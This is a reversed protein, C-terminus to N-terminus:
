CTGVLLCAGEIPRTTSPIDAPHHEQAVPMPMFLDIKPRSMLPPPRRSPDQTEDGCYMAIAESVANVYQITQDARDIEVEVNHLAVDVANIREIFIQRLTISDGAVQKATRTDKVLDALLKVAKSLPGARRGVLKDVTVIMDIGTGTSFTRPDKIKKLRDYIEQGTKIYNESRPNGSLTDTVAMEAYGAPTAALAVAITNDILHATLIVVSAVQGINAQVTSMWFQDSYVEARLRMHAARGQKFGDFRGVAKQWDRVLQGDRYVVLQKCEAPPKAEAAYPLLLAGIVTTTVLLRRLRDM